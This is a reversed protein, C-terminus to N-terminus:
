LEGLLAKIEKETEQKIQRALKGYDVCRNYKWLGERQMEMWVNEEYFEIGERQKKIVSKATELQQQLEKAYRYDKAYILYHRFNAWGHMEDVRKELQLFRYAYHYLLSSDMSSLRKHIKDKDCSFDHEKM